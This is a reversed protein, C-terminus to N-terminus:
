ISALGDSTREGDIRAKELRDAAEEDLGPFLHSYVTMTVVPSAHGLRDAILKPHKGQAMLLAVHSHRLDHYRLPSVGAAETAPIWISSAPVPEPRM